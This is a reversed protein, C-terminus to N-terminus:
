GPTRSRWSRFWPRWLALTMVGWVAAFVVALATSPGVALLTLAFPVALAFSCIAWVTATAVFALLLAGKQFARSGAAFLESRRHWETPLDRLAVRLDSLSHARLALETRTGFEELSIRGKIFHDQLSAAARDRDRDGVLAM